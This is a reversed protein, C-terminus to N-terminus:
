DLWLIFFLFVVECHLFWGTMGEICLDIKAVDWTPGGVGVSSMSGKVVNLFLLVLFSSEGIRVKLTVHLELDFKLYLVCYTCPVVYLSNLHRSSVILCLWCASYETCFNAWVKLLNIIYFLFLATPVFLYALNSCM